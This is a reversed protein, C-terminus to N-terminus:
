GCPTLYKTSGWIALSKEDEAPLLFRLTTLQNSMHNIVPRVEALDPSQLVTSSTSDQVRTPLKFSCGQLEALIKLVRPVVLLTRWQKKKKDQIEHVGIESYTVNSHKLVLSLASRARRFNAISRQLQQELKRSM